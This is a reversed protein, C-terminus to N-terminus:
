YHWLDFPDILPPSTGTATTRPLKREKKRGIIGETLFNVLIPLSHLIFESRPVVSAVSKTSNTMVYTGMWKIGPSIVIVM